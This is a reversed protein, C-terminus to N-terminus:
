QLQCHTCKHPIVHLKHMLMCNCNREIFHLEIERIPEKVVTSFGCFGNLCFTNQKIENEEVIKNYGDIVESNSM